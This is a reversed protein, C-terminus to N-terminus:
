AAEREKSTNVRLTKGDSIWVINGDRDTRYVSINLRELLETTEKHPHGYDNPSGVSIVAYKPSVAQVFARLSSTSSGHHAVKIVDASLEAGSDYIDQEATKEIDGTFLFSTQGCILKAAISYNNLDDYDRVPALIDLYCGATLEYRVGPEAYELAAGCNEASELLRQYSRTVPVMKETLKPMLLTEIGFEDIVKSLAGIHDSHPHSAIVMDLSELELSKLYRIVDASASSEGADILVSTEGALILACDGQGVDIFHVAIEGEALEVYAGDSLGFAEYLEHWKPIWSIKFFHENLYMVAAFLILIGAVFLIVKRSSANKGAPLNKILTELGGALRRNANRSGASKKPYKEM